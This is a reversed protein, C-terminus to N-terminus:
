GDSVEVEAPLEETAVPKAEDATKEKGKSMEVLARTLLYLGLTGLAQIEEWYRELWAPSWKALLMSWAHTIKSREDDSMEWHEGASAIMYQETMRIVTEVPEHYEEAVTKWMERELLRLEREHKLQARRETM